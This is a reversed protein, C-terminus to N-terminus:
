DWFPHWASSASLPYSGLATELCSSALVSSAIAWPTGVTRASLVPLWGHWLLCRPWHTRDRSMLPLFEPKNRLEVFPTFPVIGFFTAMMILHVVSGVLFTKKGLKVLCSAMGFEVRFFPEFCCKTENGYIPLFLYNILATFILGLVVGFGKGNVYMLLLKINGPKGSPM